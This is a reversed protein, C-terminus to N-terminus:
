AAEKLVILAMPKPLQARNIEPANRAGIKLILLIASRVLEFASESLGYINITQVVAGRKGPNLPDVCIVPDHGMQQLGTELLKDLAPDWGVMAIVFCM